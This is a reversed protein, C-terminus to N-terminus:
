DDRLPWTRLEATEGTLPDIPDDDSPRPPEPGDDNMRIVYEVRASRHTPAGRVAVERVPGTRLADSSARLKARERVDREAETRATLDRALRTRAASPSHFYPSCPKWLPGVAKVVVFRPALRAVLPHTRLARRADRTIDAPVHTGAPVIEWREGFLEDSGPLWARPIPTRSLDGDPEPLDDPDTPRPPELGAAGSRVFRDVRVTRFRRGAVTVEDRRERELLASAEWYAERHAPPTSRRLAQVRFGFGMADRAEQPYVHAAPNILWGGGAQEAVGYTVHFWRVSPYTRRAREEAARWSPLDGGLALDDSDTILVM